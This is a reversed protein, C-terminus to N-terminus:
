PFLALTCLLPFRGHIAVPYEVDFSALERGQTMLNLAERLSAGKLSVGNISLLKDGPKLLGLRPVPM